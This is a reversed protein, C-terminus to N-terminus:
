CYRDKKDNRTYEKGEENISIQFIRYRTTENRLCKDRDPCISCFSKKGFYKKYTFNKVKITQEDQLCATQKFETQKWASM